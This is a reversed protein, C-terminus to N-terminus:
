SFGTKLLMQLIVCVMDASEESTCLSGLLRIYPTVQYPFRKKTSNLLLGLGGAQDQSLFM